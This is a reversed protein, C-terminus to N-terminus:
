HQNVRGESYHFITKNDDKKLNHLYEYQETIISCAESNVM